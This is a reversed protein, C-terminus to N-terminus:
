TKAQEYCRINQKFNLRTRPDEGESEKRPYCSVVPKGENRCTVTSEPLVRVTWDRRGGQVPLYRM